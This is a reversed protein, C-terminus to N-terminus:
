RRQELKLPCIIDFSIHLHYFHIPLFKLHAALSRKWGKGKLFGSFILIRRYVWFNGSQISLSIVVIFVRQSAVSPTIAAFSV